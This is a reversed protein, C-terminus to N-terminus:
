KDQTTSPDVVGAETGCPMRLLYGAVTVAAAAILGWALIVYPFPVFTLAAVAVLMFTGGLMLGKVVGSNHATSESSTM